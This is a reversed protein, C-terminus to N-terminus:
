FSPSIMFPNPEFIPFVSFNMSSAQQQSSPGSTISSNSSNFDSRDTDAQVVTRSTNNATPVVFAIESSVDAWYIIQTDGNYLSGGHDTSMWQEVSLISSLKKFCLHRYMSSWFNLSISWVAISVFLLLHSYRGAPTSIGQGDQTNISMLRGVLASFCKLFILM